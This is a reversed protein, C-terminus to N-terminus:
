DVRAQLETIHEGYDSAEHIDILILEIIEGAMRLGNKRAYDFFMPVYTDGRRSSGKYRLTLYDGAPIVSDAAPDDNDIVFVGDYRHFDGASAADWNMRCGIHTNGIIYLRNQIRNLLEKLLVDMEEDSGFGKKIEHCRRVGFHVQEIVGVPKQRASEIAALRKGVNSKLRKLERMRNDIEALEQRLLAVTGDVSRGDLYDRIQAMSFGLARLDRIVNMRWIETISYMRYENDARVPRILGIEEYYRVTDTGVGYLKALEGVKFYRQM